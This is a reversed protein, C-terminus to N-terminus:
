HRKTLTNNLCRLPVQFLQAQLKDNTAASRLDNM